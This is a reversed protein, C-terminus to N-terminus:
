VMNTQNYLLGEDAKGFCFEPYIKMKGDEVTLAAKVDLAEIIERQKAFNDNAKVLGARIKAAFQLADKIKLESAEAQQIKATIEQRKVNLKDLMAEIRGINAKITARAHENGELDVYASTQKDLDRRLEKEEQDLRNLQELFTRKIEDQEAKYDEFGKELEEEDQMKKKLWEWIKTDVRDRQFRPLTCKQGTTPVVANKNKWSCIYYFRSKIEGSILKHGPTLCVMKYDCLGWVCRYQYLYNHKSKRRTMAKNQELRAQAVKFLEDDILRLEPMNLVVDSNAEVFDKIITKGGRKAIRAASKAYAWEGIYVRNKLIQAISTIQWDYRGHIKRAIKRRHDAESPTPVLNEKLKAAISRLSLGVVVYWHFIMRVWQAEDEFIVLKYNISKYGYPPSGHVLMRKKNRVSNNVRGNYLTKAINIRDEESAWYQLFRMVRGIGDRPLNNLERNWVYEIEIGQEYFQREFDMAKYVDRSYRKVDRILLIDFLGAKAITLAKILEPANFDAGSVGRVDEQLKDIIIYGKQRADAELVELQASLSDRETDDSSTRAYLVARKILTPNNLISKSETQAKM